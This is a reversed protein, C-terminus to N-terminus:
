RTWIEEVFLYFLNFVYSNDCNNQFSKTKIKSCSLNPMFEKAIEEKLKKSKAQNRLTKFYGEPLECRITIGEGVELISDFSGTIINDKVIYKIKENDTSNIRGSSFGLKSSDFDKPMTISFTVNGIVTDWDNGIINYYLEDYDITFDNGINYKYKIVYTKEGTLTSSSSGIIIKYNNTNKTTVYEETVSVNNVQANNISKSGDLRYIYNVLPITRYIGHKPKNFYATITETIDFSNDENVKMNVDYKDIVYDCSRYKENKSPTKESINTVGYVNSSCIFTLLM